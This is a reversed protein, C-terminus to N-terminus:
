GRLIGGAQKAVQAVVKQSIAKDTPTAAQCITDDDDPLIYISVKCFSPSLKCKRMIRLKM